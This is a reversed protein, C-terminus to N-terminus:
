QTCNLKERESGAEVPLRGEIANKNAVCCADICEPAREM